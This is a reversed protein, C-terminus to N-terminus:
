YQICALKIGFRVGNNALYSPPESVQALFVSQSSQKAKDSICALSPCM